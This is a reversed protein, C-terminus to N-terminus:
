RCGAVGVVAGFLGGGFGWWGWWGRGGRGGGKGSQFAVGAGLAVKGKQVAQCVRGLELASKEGRGRSAMGVKVYM